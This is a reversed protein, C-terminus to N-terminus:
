KREKFNSRQEIRTDRIFRTSSVNDRVTKPTWPVPIAVHEKFFPVQDLPTPAMARKKNFFAGGIEPYANAGNKTNINFDFQSTLVSTAVVRRSSVRHSNYREFNGQTQVLNPLERTTTGSPIPTVNFKVPQLGRMQSFKRTDTM